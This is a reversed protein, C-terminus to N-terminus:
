QTVGAQVIFKGSFALFKTGGSPTIHMDWYAVGDNGNAGADNAVDMAEMTAENIRIRISSTPVGGTTVVSVLRVGEVDTTQTTLSARPTGATRDLTDHVQAAFTADTLDIGVIDIDYVFPVWRGATLRLNVTDFM